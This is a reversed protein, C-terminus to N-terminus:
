RSARQAAMAAAIQVRLLRPQDAEIAIGTGDRLQLMVLREIALGMEVIEELPIWRMGGETVHVLRESTLYLAGGRLQNGDPGEPPITELMALARTAHLTEDEELQQALRDDPAIRPLGRERYRDRARAAATEDERARELIREADTLAESPVARAPADAEGAPLVPEESELASM